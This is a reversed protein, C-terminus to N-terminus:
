ASHVFVLPFSQARWLPCVPLQWMGLPVGLSSAALATSAPLKGFCLLIFVCLDVELRVVAFFWIGQLSGCLFSLSTTQCM